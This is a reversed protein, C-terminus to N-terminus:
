GEMLEPNEHINGIVEIDMTSDIYLTNLDYLAGYRDEVVFGFDDWRIKGCKEREVDRLGNYFSYQVKVVDGEFILKGNVDNHGICMELVSNDKHYAYIECMKYAHNEPVYCGWEGDPCLFCDEAEASVFSKSEDSWIRYKLRDNNM